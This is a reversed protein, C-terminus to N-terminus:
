LTVKIQLVLEDFPELTLQEDTPHRYLPISGDTASVEGQLAVLRPVFGGKHKMENWKTEQRLRYFCLTAFEKDVFLNKHLHVYGYNTPIAHSTSM